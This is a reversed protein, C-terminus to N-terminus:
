QKLEKVIKWGEKLTEELTKRNSAYVIESTKGDSILYTRHKYARGMETGGEDFIRDFANEIMEEGGCMSM